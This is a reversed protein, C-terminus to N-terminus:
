RAVKLEPTPNISPSLTTSSSRFTLFELTSSTTTGSAWFYRARASVTVRVTVSVTHSKELVVREFGEVVMQIGGIGVM